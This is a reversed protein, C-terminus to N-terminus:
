RLPEVSFTETNGTITLAPTQFSRLLSANMELIRTNQEIVMKTMELMEKSPKVEETHQIKNEPNM